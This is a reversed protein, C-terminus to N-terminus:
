ELVGYSGAVDHVGCRGQQFHASCCIHLAASLFRLLYTYKFLMCRDGAKTQFPFQLM